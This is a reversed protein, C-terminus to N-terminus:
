WRLIERLDDLSSEVLSSIMKWYMNPYVNQSKPIVLKQHLASPSISTDVLAYYKDM